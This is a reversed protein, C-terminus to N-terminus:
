NKRWINIKEGNDYGPASLPYPPYECETSFKNGEDVLPKLKKRIDNIGLSEFTDRHDRDFEYGDVHNIRHSFVYEDMDFSIRVNRACYLRGDKIDLLPQGFIFKPIDFGSVEKSFDEKYVPGWNQKGFQIKM